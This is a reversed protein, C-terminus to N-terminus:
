TCCTLATAKLFIEVISFDPQYNGAQNTINISWQKSNCHQELNKPLYFKRKEKFTNSFYGSLRQFPPPNQHIITGENDGAVGNGPIRYINIIAPNNHSIITKRGNFILDDSFILCAFM